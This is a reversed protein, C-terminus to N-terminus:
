WFGCVGPVTVDLQFMSEIQEQLCDLCRDHRNMTQKTVMGIALQQSKKLEISEM